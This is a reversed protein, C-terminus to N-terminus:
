LRLLAPVPFLSRRGTAAVVPLLPVGASSGSGRIQIPRRTARPWKYDADFFFKNGTMRPISSAVEGGM